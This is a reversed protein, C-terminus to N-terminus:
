HQAAQPIPPWLGQQHEDEGRIHQYKELNESLIIPQPYQFLIEQVCVNLFKTPSNAQKTVWLTTFKEEDTSTFVHDRQDHGKWGEDYSPWRHGSIRKKKPKLHKSNPRVNM